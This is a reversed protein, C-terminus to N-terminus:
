PRPARDVSEPPSRIFGKAPKDARGPGLDTRPRVPDRGRPIPRSRFPLCAASITSARNQCLAHNDEKNITINAARRLREELKKVAADGRERELQQRAQLMAVRKSVTAGPMAGTKVIVAWANLIRVPKSVAGVRPLTEAVLGISKLPEPAGGIHWPLQRKKRAAYITERLAEVLIARPPPPRIFV